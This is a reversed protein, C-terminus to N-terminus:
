GSRQATGPNATRLAQTQRTTGPTGLMNKRKELGRTLKASPVRSRLLVAVPAVAFVATPPTITLFMWLSLVAVKLELGLGPAHNRLMIKHLGRARNKLM